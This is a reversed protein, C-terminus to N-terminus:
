KDAWLDEYSVGGIQENTVAQVVRHAHYYISTRSYGTEQSRRSVAGRFGSLVAAANGIWTDVALGWM